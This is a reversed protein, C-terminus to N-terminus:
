IIVQHEQSQLLVRLLLKQGQTHLVRVQSLIDQWFMSVHYGSSWVQLSMQSYSLFVLKQEGRRM